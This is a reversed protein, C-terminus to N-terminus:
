SKGWKPIGLMCGLFLVAYGVFYRWGHVHVSKGDLLSGFVALVVSWRMFYSAASM